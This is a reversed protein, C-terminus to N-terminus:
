KLYEEPNNLHYQFIELFKGVHIGDMLAHHVEVSVPMKTAGSDEHYKGFVIKPISDRTKYKRAHTFSTFAIWPIVSYHVLDDRQEQAELCKFGEAFKKLKQFAASNFRQFNADYDFYCFSFTEDSNLVTSGAHIVDHIIIKEDRIRLRFETITNAARLSLYLSAIFFSLQHEKTYTLLDTIDVAACVNFCPHDYDKFFYFLEKRNWNELDLYEM